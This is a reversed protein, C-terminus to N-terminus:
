ILDVVLMFIIFVKFIMYDIVNKSFKISVM